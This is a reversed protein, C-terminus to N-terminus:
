SNSPKLLADLKEYANQGEYERDGSSYELDFEGHEPQELDRWSRLVRFLEGQKVEPRPPKHPTLRPRLDLLKGMKM